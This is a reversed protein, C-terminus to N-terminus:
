KVIFNDHAFDKEMQAKKIIFVRVLMYCKLLNRFRRCFSQLLDDM